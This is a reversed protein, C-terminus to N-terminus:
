KTRNIEIINRAAQLLEPSDAIGIAIPGVTV